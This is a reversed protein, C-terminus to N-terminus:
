KTEGRAKAIAAIPGDWTDCFDEYESSELWQSQVSDCDGSPEARIFWQEFSSQQEQDVITELEKLLEPAAQILKGNPSKPDLVVGYEGYASGDDAIAYNGPAVKAEALSSAPILFSADAKTLWIWPGPTHSNM